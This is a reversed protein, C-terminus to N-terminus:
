FNKGRKLTQVKEDDVTNDLQDDNKKTRKCYKYISIFVIVIIIIIIISFVLVEVVISDTSSHDHTPTVSKIEEKSVFLSINVSEKITSNDVSVASITYNGNDTLTLNFIMLTSEGDTRNVTFKPGRSEIEEGSYSYWTTTIPLQSRIKVKLEAAEGESQIVRKNVICLQLTNNPATGNDWTNKNCVLSGASFFYYNIYFFFEVNKNSKIIIIKKSIGNKGFCNLYNDNTM